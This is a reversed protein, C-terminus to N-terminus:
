YLFLCFIGGVRRESRGLRLVEWLSRVNGRGGEGGIEDEEVRGYKGQIRSYWGERIWVGKAKFEFSLWLLQTDDTEVNCNKSDNALLDIDCTWLGEFM